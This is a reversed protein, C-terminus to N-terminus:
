PQRATKQVGLLWTQTTRSGGKGQREGSNIVSHVRPSGPDLHDLSGSTAESLLSSLGASFFAVRLVTPNATCFPPCKNELKKPSHKVKKLSTALIWPFGHNSFDTPAVAVSLALCSFHCVKGDGVWGCRFHGVPFQHTIDFFFERNAFFCTEEWYGYLSLPASPSLTKDTSCNAKQSSRACLGWCDVKTRGCELTVTTCGQKPPFPISEAPCCLSMRFEQSCSFEM